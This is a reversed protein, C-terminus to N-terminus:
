TGCYTVYPETGGPAPLAYDAWDAREFYPSRVVALLAFFPAYDGGNASALAEEVKHNRPIYLPNVANMAEARQAPSQPDRALRERWQVCWADFANRDEFLATAAASDGAQAQSLSRFLLTFDAKGAEMAKLLDLVLQMDGDEASALGIKARIGPLWHAFYRDAFGDILPGLKAVDEDGGVAHVAGALAEALRHMNWRAIGPQNGFAYRGHQDISSFVTGAAYVDLFACPGYDITEGAISCNDTNMVGHVFGVQMWRAILAAQAEVVKEFFALYPNPTNAAEPYHRAIAHDALQRVADTGHHAAFYAFTGVRIHSAAVRTLVAGPLFVERFVGDGTKVAALSRTTPIGLAHMAESVLYERLVPGLAAKGDGGRSYPTRGSGKLQIDFRRGDPAVIEGLLHARGDGLQPNFQGFQHGAYTLAIPQAGKPLTAGSLMAALDADTTDRRDIGLDSALADNFAILEPASAPEPLVSSYFGEMTRHFSNDFTFIM